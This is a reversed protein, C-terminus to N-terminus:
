GTQVHHSTVGTILLRCAVAEVHALDLQARLRGIQGRLEDVDNKKDSM